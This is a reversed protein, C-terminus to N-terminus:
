DEFKGRSRFWERDAWTLNFYATNPNELSDEPWRFTSVSEGALQGCRQVYKDWSEEPVPDCYTSYLVRGKKTNMLTRMRGNTVIWLETGLVAYGNHSLWEVVEVCDGQKWAPERSAFAATALHQPLGEPFASEAPSSM